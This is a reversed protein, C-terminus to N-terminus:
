GVFIPSGSMGSIAGIKELPTAMPGGSIRILIRYSGMADVPEGLVVNFPQPEVGKFVSFGIAETGPKLDKLLLIKKPANAWANSAFFAIVLFTLLAKAFNKM